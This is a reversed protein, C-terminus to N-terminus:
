ESASTANSWRRQMEAASVDETRTEIFWSYGFPDVVLGTRDGHFEQRVARVLVGGAALARAVGADADPVSLHLSVPSGGITDPSLAGFDPYEDSLSLTTEGFALEAHGVRGDIPDTLRYNEVAGFAEIYFAIAAKADKVVLHPTLMPM